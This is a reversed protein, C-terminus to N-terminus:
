RGARSSSERLLRDLRALEVPKTFHADFGAARSREVEAEGGYGTLAVLFIGDAGLQARIRRAVENGDIEPLGIDVLAVEPRNAVAHAVAESGDAAVAVQHGSLELLTKLAERTDADDEVLLIRRGPAPESEAGGGGVGAAPGEAGQGALRPAGHEVHEGHEGHEGPEVGDGHEVRESRDGRDGARHNARSGKAGGARADADVMECVAALLDAPEVPKTIYRGFGAALARQRDEERAHASVAIAPVKGGRQATRRRLQRMLAYGDGGPMAIDSVLLDPRRQDFYELTAALSAATAVTAGAGRLVEGLIERTDPEDDVVLIEVGALAVEAAEPAHEGAVAGPTQRPPAMAAIAAIAVGAALLPLSVTFTAGLQAGPSEADVKGGHLEVIHRVIALGIGLGGHARTSSSDDQRFRDFVHALFQPSIGKGTDRVSIKLWEAQCSVAVEIRGGPPTFKIANSLLNWGVQQLREADGAIAVAPEVEPGIALRLDLGKAEAAPRMAEVATEIPALVAIPRLSVRLKGAIIRSVDLLDEILKTQATVNREIVELGHAFRGADPRSTRLVRTWGLIATLPTRLEHSLTTLFEDKLRNAERAESSLLNEIAVSAVQSLQTVITRDDDGFEAGPQGALHVWGICRGDRGTLPAALWAADAAAGGGSALRWRADGAM